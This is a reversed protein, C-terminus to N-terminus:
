VKTLEVLIKATKLEIERLADAMMDQPADELKRIQRIAKMIRGLRVEVKRRTNQTM